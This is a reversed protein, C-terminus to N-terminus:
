DFSRAFATMHCRVCPADRGADIDWEPHHILGAEPPLRVVPVLSHGSAWDVVFVLGGPAIRLLLKTMIGPHLPDEPEVRAGYRYEVNVVLVNWMNDMAGGQAAAYHIHTTLFLQV